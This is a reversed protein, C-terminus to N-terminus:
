GVNEKIEAPNAPNRRKIKCDVALNRHLVRFHTIVAVKWIGLREGDMIVGRWVQLSHVYYLLATHVSELKAVFLQATREEPVHRRTMTLILRFTALWYGPSAADCGLLISVEAVGRQYVSFQM